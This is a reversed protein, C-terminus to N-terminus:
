FQSHRRLTRGVCEQRDAFGPDEPEQSDRSASSGGAGRRLVFPQLHRYTRARAPLANDAVSFRAATRTGLAGQLFVGPLGASQSGVDRAQHHRGKRRRGHSSLDSLLAWNDQAYLKDQLEATRVIGQQLAQEAHEKSRWHGTDAPDFDKLRFHKGGEVRYIKALKDPKM